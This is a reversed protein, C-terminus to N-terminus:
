NAKQAAKKSQDLKALALDIKQKFVAYPLAGRVAEGTITVGDGTPGLFFTPTGSVGVRQGDRLDSAIQADFRKSNACESFKPDDLGISDAYKKLEAPSLKPNNRFLVEHMDWYKKQEGACHAAVAAGRALPHIMDIPFDRFVYRLKGTDVYDKKLRPFVTMAFRKCFPCQYDSFEVITLPAKPDGMAQRNKVMVKAISPPAKRRGMAQLLLGKVEGLEKKVDALEKTLEAVDAKTAPEAHGTSAMALSALLGALVFSTLKKLLSNSVM